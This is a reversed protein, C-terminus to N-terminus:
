AGCNARDVRTDVCSAGCATLGSACGAADAADAPADAGDAADAADIPGTADSADPANGDPADRDFTTDRAVSADFLGDAFGFDRECAALMAAVLVTWPAVRARSRPASRTRKHTKM